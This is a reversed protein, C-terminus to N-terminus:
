QSIVTGQVTLNMDDSTGAPIILTNGSQEAGSNANMNWQVTYGSPLSTGSTDSIHFILRMPVNDSVIIQLDQNWDVNDGEGPDVPSAFYADSYHDTAHIKVQVNTPSLASKDLDLDLHILLSEAIRAQAFAQASMMCVVLLTLCFSTIIRM